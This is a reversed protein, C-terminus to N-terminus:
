KGGLASLQAALDRHAEVSRIVGTADVAYVLGPEVLQLRRALPSDGGRGGYLQTGALKGPPIGGDRSSVNIGIVVAGRPAQKSVEKALDITADSDPRWTYLVIPKGEAPALVAKAGLVGRTIESLKKGVLAQREVIIAAQAKIAAPASSLMIERALEAAKPGESLRAAQLLLGHAAPVAPFEAILARATTKKDELWAARDKPPHKKNRLMESLQAVEFRAEPPLSADTRAARALGDLRADEAGEDLLAAGLRGKAEIQRAAKAEPRGPNQRQFDDALAAVELLHRKQAQRDAALVSASPAAREPASPTAREAPARQKGDRKTLGPPSQAKSLLRQWDQDAASQAFLPAALGLAVIV